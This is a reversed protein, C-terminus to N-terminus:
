PEAMEGFLLKRFEEILEVASELKDKSAPLQAVREIRRALPGMPPVARALEKDDALMGAQVKFAQEEQRPPNDAGVDSWHQATVYFVAQIWFLERSMRLWRRMTDPLVDALQAIAERTGFCAESAERYAAPDMANLARVWANWNEMGVLRALHVGTIQFFQTQLESGVSLVHNKLEESIDKAVMVGVYHLYGWMWGLRMALLPDRKPGMAYELAKFKAKGRAGAEGELKAAAEYSDLAPGDKGVSLDIDGKLM